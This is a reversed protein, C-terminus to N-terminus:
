EWTTFGIRLTGPSPGVAANVRFGSVRGENTRVCVYTGAPLDNVNIRATSVSASACMDRSIGGTGVKVIAAGNRPTVYRETASVAEFWIDAGSETVAGADLDAMYTQPIDLAGTAHTVPAGGVINITYSKLNNGENTEAIEGRSDAEVEVAYSGPAAYSFSVNKTCNAYHTNAPCYEEHWPFTPGQRWRFYSAPFFPGGSPSIDTAIMIALNITAGVEFNSSPFDMRRVYLDYQAAPPNVITPTNTPTASPSPTNTPTYTPLLPVEVVPVSETNYATGYQAGSSVWGRGGSDPPYVIQWWTGDPNQGAIRAAQGAPLSGIVPYATGPGSRVNLGILAVITPQGGYAPTPPLPSGAGPPATPTATDTAAAGPGTTPSPTANAVAEAVTVIVQVPDNTVNNVNYARVEVIHSGIVAPKWPQSAAYSTAAPAVALTHVLQGDVWLEVRSIGQPDAAVSQVVVDQGVAFSTGAPPSTIVVTPKAAPQAAGISCALTAALLGLLAILIPFRSCPIHSM